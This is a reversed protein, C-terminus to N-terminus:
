RNINLFTRHESPMHTGVQKSLQRCLVLATFLMSFVSYFSHPMQCSTQKFSVTHFHMPEHIYIHAYCCLHVYTTVHVFVCVYACLYVCIYYVHVNKGHCFLGVFADSYM